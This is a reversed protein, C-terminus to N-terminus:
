NVANSNPHSSAINQSLTPTLILATETAKTPNKRKKVPTKRHSVKKTELRQEQYLLHKQHCHTDPTHYSTYTPTRTTPQHTWLPTVYTEENNEEKQALYAEWYVTRDPQRPQSSGYVLIQSTNDKIVTNGLQYAAAGKPHRIGKDQGWLYEDRLHYM